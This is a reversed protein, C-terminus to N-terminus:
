RWRQAQQSFKYVAEAAEAISLTSSNNKQHDSNIYTLINFTLEFSGLSERGIEADGLEGTPVSDTKKRKLKKAPKERRKGRLSM